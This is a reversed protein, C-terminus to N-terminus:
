MDYLNPIHMVCYGAVDVFETNPWKRKLDKIFVYDHAYTPKETWLIGPKHIVNSTGCHGLANISCRRERFTGKSFWIDNVWYWNLNGLSTSLRELYSDIFMDDTDLYIMWEGTAALLGINRPIGSYPKNREIEILVIRDDRYNKLLEATYPCGDAIVYLKWDSYTQEIVSDVARVFKEKRSKAARKHFDGLYSPMIISFKEM